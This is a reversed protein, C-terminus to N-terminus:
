LWFHILLPVSHDGCVIIPNKLRNCTYIGILISKIEDIVERYSRDNEM